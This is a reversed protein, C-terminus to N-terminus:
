VTGFVIENAKSLVNEDIPQELLEVNELLHKVNKTGALVSSIGDTEYLFRLALATLLSADWNVLEYLERLRGHEEPNAKVVPHSRATLWGYGLGGRIFVGIGSEKARKINDANGTNLLNYEMQMVDFDGSEICRAALEGDISAGLYGIKGEKQADKMAAVTEGDDLVKKPDPGFHIQMIDIYDTKLLQLSRDISAKVAAYSFDYYTDPERNHEGCKSALIYENRRGYLFTGIREESKHYASATDILNIGSDLVRHLVAGATEEDPRQVSEGSGIGWDRGIELAGFGLFTVEKGIRDIYRKDLAKISM